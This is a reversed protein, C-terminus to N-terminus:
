VLYKDVEGIEIITKGDNVNFYTVELFATGLINTIEGELGGIKVEKGLLDNYNRNM